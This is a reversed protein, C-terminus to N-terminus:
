LNTTLKIGSAKGSVGIFVLRTKRVACKASSKETLSMPKQSPRNVMGLEIKAPFDVSPATSTM